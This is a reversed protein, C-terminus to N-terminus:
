AVSRLPSSGVLDGCPDAGLLEANLEHRSSINLKLYCNGLHKEVAKRSVFLAQAIEPNSLGELALRAVRREGATLAEAGDGLQRRPASALVRLEEDARDILPTAGCALALARGRQLPALADARRRARRLASGLDVLVRALELRFESGELAALARSLLGISVPEEILAAIRLGTGLSHPTPSQWASRLAPALMERAEGRRELGLLALASLERWPVLEPAIGAGPELVAGAAALRAFARECRGLALELRGQAVHVVGALSAHARAPDVAFDEAFACAVALDGREVLANILAAAALPCGSWHPSVGLDAERIVTRAAAEADALRGALWRNFARVGTAGVHASTSGFAGEGTGRLVALPRPAVGSRASVQGAATRDGMAIIM